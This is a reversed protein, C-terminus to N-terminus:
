PRQNFEVVEIVKAVNSSRKEWKGVKDGLM